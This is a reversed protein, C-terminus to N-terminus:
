FKDFESRMPEQASRHRTRSGCQDWAAGSYRAFRLTSTFGKTSEWWGLRETSVQRGQSGLFVVTGGDINKKTSKEVNGTLFLLRMDAFM